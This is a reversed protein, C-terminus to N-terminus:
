NPFLAAFLQDQALFNPVIVDAGVGVLRKRKWEDVTLCQPEASAVGVAVGGVEKVNEIEVYGDGFGLFEEGRFEASEIIRKILIAKSFSKYDELAGYVGDFYRDIDLLRAEERVNEQDTGSALYLKFGREKLNELLQRSGPILHEEPSVAGGRLAELRGSIMEHLRDLYIKKYVKPDEPSGGRKAIQDAFEIMQYITEKGTLRGVYDDVVARLTEDSEGTKLEALTEVMMPVMIDVWGTRILSLTGDFDFLVVRTKHATVGPTVFEIM